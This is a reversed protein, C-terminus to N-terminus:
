YYGLWKWWLLGLFLWVSLNVISIIFGFKWWTRLSVYGSGYLIPAPGIGYHTIGGFLNSLYAFILATVLPPADLNLAVSFFPLFLAGIHATSSAFLYHSYFYVLLLGGMAFYFNYNLLYSAFVKGFLATLGFDNLGSAMAILAGFWLFAEWASHLELLEKWTVINLMLMSCIGLLVTVTANLGIYPGSVWLIVMVIFIILTSLEQKSMRGMIKLQEKAIQPPSYVSSIKPKFVFSAVLPLLILSILGPVIAGAAWTSWNIEVNMKSALDVVLPNAAMATLFMASTIVTAQFALSILYMSIPCEDFGANKKGITIALAQVIPYVIGGSRATVSPIAPALILETLAVGYGLGLMTKGLLAIFWYAIRKGLGTKIFGYSVFFAGLVLWVVPEAYGKFAAQFSLTQTLVTITLGFLTAAGMPLANLVILLITGIFIALMTWARPEIETSIPFLWITFAVFIALCLLRLNVTRM